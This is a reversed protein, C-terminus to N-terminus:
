RQQFPADHLFRHLIFGARFRLEVRTNRGLNRTGGDAYKGAGQEGIQQIPISDLPIIQHLCQRESRDRCAGLIGEPAM